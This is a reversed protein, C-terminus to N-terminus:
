RVESLKVVITDDYAVISGNKPWLPMDVSRAINAEYLEYTAPKFKYGLYNMLQVGRIYEIDYNFVSGGFGQTLGNEMEKIQYKGILVVPKDPADDGTLDIIDDGIMRALNEDRVYRVHASYSSLNVNYIYSYNVLITLAILIAMVGKKADINKSSDMWLSVVVITFFGCLGIMIPFATLARLM